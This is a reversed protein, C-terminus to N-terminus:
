KMEEFEETLRMLESISKVQFKAKSWAESVGDFKGAIKDSGLDVKKARLMKLISTEWDRALQGDMPGRTELIEWGLKKHGNLRQDLYNTIGIQLMEWDPQEILYM